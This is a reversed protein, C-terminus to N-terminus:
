FKNIALNNVILYSNAGNYHLCLSFTEQQESFNIAHKKEVALTTDELVQAM